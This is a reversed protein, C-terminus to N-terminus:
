LVEVDGGLRKLEKYFDPFSKAVSEAERIIVPEECFLAAISLAM